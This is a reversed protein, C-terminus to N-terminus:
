KKKINRRETANSELINVVETGPKMDIDNWAPLLLIPKTIRQAMTTPLEGHLVNPQFSPHIGVGCQFQLGGSNNQNKHYGLIRGIIWGGFCFGACGLKTADPAQLKIWPVILDFIDSEVKQPKYDYKLRYIMRPSGLFSGIFDKSLKYDDKIWPQLIPIGRQIDPMMVAVKGNEDMMIMEEALLDAFVKHHGADIGYVDTFIAVVTTAESLPCGTCYCPMPEPPKDDDINKTGAPPDLSIEVMHGQIPRDYLVNADDISGPPCCAPAAPATPPDQNEKTDNM